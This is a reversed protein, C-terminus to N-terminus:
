ALLYDVKGVGISKRLIGWFLAWWDKQMLFMQGWVFVGNMLSCVPIHFWRWKAINKKLKLNCLLLSGPIIQLPLVLQKLM